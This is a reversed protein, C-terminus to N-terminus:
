HKSNLEDFLMENWLMTYGRYLCEWIVSSLAEILNPTFHAIRLSLIRLM